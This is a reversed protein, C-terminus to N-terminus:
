TRCNNQFNEYKIKVQGFYKNVENTLECKHQNFKTGFSQIQGFGKLDKKCNNDKTPNATCQLCFQSRLDQCSLNLCFRQVKVKM